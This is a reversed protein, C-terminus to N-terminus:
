ACSRVEQDGITPDVPAPSHGAEGSGSEPTRRRRSARGRVRQASRGALDAAAARDERPPANLAYAEIASTYGADLAREGLWALLRAEARRRQKHLKWHSHGREAALSTLSRREWRSVVILEAAAATIVGAAVAEALVTEPHGPQALIVRARDGLLDLALALDAVPETETDRQQAARIAARYVAWRLRHWLVPRDLEVCGLHTLFGTLVESEIDNRYRTGRAAFLRAMASLMPVALAACVLTADGGQERAREILWVWIADVQEIPLARDWLLERLGDWSEVPSGPPSPVPRPDAPLPQGAIRDFATWVVALPSRKSGSRGSSNGYKSNTM